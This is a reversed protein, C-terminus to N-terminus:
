AGNLYGIAKGYNYLKELVYQAIEGVTTQARWM